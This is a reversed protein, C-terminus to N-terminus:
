HIVELSIGLIKYQSQKKNRHNSRSQLFLSQTKSTMKKKKELHHSVSDVFQKSNMGRTNSLRASKVCRFPLVLNLCIAILLTMELIYRQQKGQGM